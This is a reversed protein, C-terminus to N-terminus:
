AIQRMREKIEFWDPMVARIAQELLPSRKHADVHSVEVDFEAQLWPFNCTEWFDIGIYADGYNKEYIFHTGGMIITEEMRAVVDKRVDTLIKELKKM